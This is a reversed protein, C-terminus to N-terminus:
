FQLKVNFGINRTSPVMFYDVGTYFTNGAGAIQEPDFPAKTYIMALNNGVLGVSMGFRDGFWKRPLAYSVSVEGLRINTADYIYHKGLGGADTIATLYGKVPVDRGDITVGRERLAASYESVGFRDLYAQTNSVVLGGFRGRLQVSLEVGKYSFSNSWGAYSKAMLTGAKTYNNDGVLVPANTGPNIYIDGAADKQWTRNMVYLDNTTGGPVLRVVPGGSRGLTAVERYTENAGLGLEKVKNDNFSFTATSRWGFGGSWEKNFGLSVEMGTNQINGAQSFEDVYGSHAARSKIYTQNYTNSTYGTVDLTLAGNFFRLDVGAEYSVTREPRPDGYGARKDISWQRVQENWVFYRNANTYTRYPQLGSGVETRSLRLKAFDFGRPMRFMESFVFSLGASPYFFSYNRSAGGALTSDWDNRGTLTLYVMGKYGAEVNAFVSQIQQHVGDDFIKGTAPDISTTHFQNAFVNDAINGEDRHTKWGYDKISAGLNVFLDFDGIRKRYNAIVDAYTQREDKLEQKYFGKYENAFLPTTGANRKETFRYDSNDVNVRGTVDLGPAIDYKLSATLMYRKKDTERNMRHMIWYPNQADLGLDGYAWNQMMVEREMNWTEFLRVDDFDEGRPFLYLAPLPNFYQGQSVMNRDKQLIYNASVDMTFKDDLFSTTYRFAFNNRGYTNNPLVGRAATNAASFYAQNRSNGTQLTVGTTTNHGTQYFKAPDYRRPTTEGWSDTAGPLNGYRNQFEPLMLPTSLTTNNSLTLITKDATGKKTTILVVGNAGEYGYLAAAAPGTLMSMSEIDDPNIDAIGEGGPQASMMTAGEDVKTTNSRLPIGDVVYLVNNSGDLSKVGRAVVKVAGGPGSAANIQVGAVKGALANVFNASKVTTLAENDVTQVNYSLAKQERRIGLATVVVQELGVAQEALSVNFVSTTGITVDKPEFGLSSFSLTQDRNEVNLTFTGAASTIAGRQTGKVLVMVGALPNGAEDVVRGEVTRNAGAPTQQAAAATQSLLITSRDVSWSIGTGAFLGGLVEGLPKDQATISVIQQVNVNQQNYVFLFNTQKEIDDLVTEIRVNQLNLTVGVDQAVARHVTGFCATAVVFFALLLSRKM